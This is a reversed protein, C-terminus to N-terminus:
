LRQKNHQMSIEKPNGADATKVQQIFQQVQITNIAEKTQM